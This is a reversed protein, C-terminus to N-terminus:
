HCSPHKESTFQKNRAWLGHVTFGSGNFWATKEGRLCKKLIDFLAQAVSRSSFEFREVPVGYHHEIGENAQAVLMFDEPVRVNKKLLATTVGRAAIDDSIILANASSENSPNARWQEIFQLAAQFANKEMQVGGEFPRVEVPPLQLTQTARQIGQVDRSDAHNHRFYVMRKRESQALFQVAEYGFGDFDICVDTGVQVIPIDVATQKRWLADLGPDLAIAGKLLGNRVDESWQQGIPSECFDPRSLIEMLGDYPRCMWVGDKIQTTISSIASYITRHSYAFENMLSPGILVGVIVKKTRPRVFTGNRPQREILGDAALRKMAKQIVTNGVGWREALKETSPLPSAPDWEGRAIQSRFREEIQLYLPKSRELVSEAILQSQESSSIM